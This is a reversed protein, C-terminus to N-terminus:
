CPATAEAGRRLEAVKVAAVKARQRHPNDHSFENVTPGVERGVWDAAVNRMVLRVFDDPHVSKSPTRLVAKLSPCGALLYKALQKVRDVRSKLERKSGLEEYDARSAVLEEMFAELFGVVAGVEDDAGGAEAGEGALARRIRWFILPDQVAGRGIMIGDCGTERLMLRAKAVSTVDGNGMVPIAEVTRKALAIKSWDADGRYGQAKTRPHVAIMAAGAAEAARVNDEFLDASEFGSRMKVTVPARGGAADVMAAVCDHLRQPERLLSSGAGKGTVTNAPCGCNLNIHPPRRAAEVDLLRETVAVLREPTAGMLQVSLPPGGPRLESPDYHGAIGRALNATMTGRDPVRLFETCYEDCGGVARAHARRFVRDGLLEMPALMLAPPPLAEAPPRARGAGGAARAAAARERLVPLVGGGM